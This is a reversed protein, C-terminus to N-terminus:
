GIRRVATLGTLLMLASILLLGYQNLTPIGEFFVTNTVTCNREVDGVAISIPYSCTSETEVASSRIHEETWCKTDGEFDPYVTAIHSAPNGDFLWSWRMVKGNSEGDGAFVGSCYLEIDADDDLANEEREYLWQKTVTLKVPDVENTILCLDQQNAKVGPFYCPGAGDIGTSCSNDSHCDYEPTYGPLATEWVACNVAGAVINEVIFTQEYLGFSYEDPQITSSTQHITGGNCQINLTFPTIDNGDSFRKQVKFTAIEGSGAPACGHPVTIALSEFGILPVTNHVVTRVDSAAGTTTNVRMVQSPLAPGVISRDIIAWLQGVEDFALGAQDYPGVSPGLAGMAEITADSTNIKYLIHSSDDLGYLQVPNGYAALASIDVGMDGIPTPTTPGPAAVKYDVSFLTQDTAANPENKNGVSTM